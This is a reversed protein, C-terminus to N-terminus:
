LKNQKQELYVQYNYRKLLENKTINFQKEFKDNGIFIKIYNDTNIIIGDNKFYEYRAYALDVSQM